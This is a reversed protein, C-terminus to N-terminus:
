VRHYDARWQQIAEKIQKPRLQEAVARKALEPFEADSAFRLAIIQGMRLQPDLAKGTLVFHRFNEENRIVRDQVKLAYIRTLGAVCLLLFFAIAISAHIICDPGSSMFTHILGAAVGLLALPMIFYHFFPHMRSHNSFNQEPM